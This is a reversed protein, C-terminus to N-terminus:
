MNEIINILRSKTSPGVFREVIIGDKNVILTDPQGIVSYEKSVKENTDLLYLIQSNNEKVYNEVRKKPEGKAIIILKAGDYEKNFAELEPAEERCSDCWTAFFNIVLNQGAYDASKHINGELDKLEFPILEDGPNATQKDQLGMLLVYIFAVVFVLLVIPILKKKM